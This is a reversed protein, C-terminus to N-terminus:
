VCSGVCEVVVFVEDYYNIVDNKFNLLISALLEGVCYVKEVSTMVNEVVDIYSVELYNKPQKMLKCINFTVVM